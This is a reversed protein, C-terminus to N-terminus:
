ALWGVVARSGYGAPEFLLREEATMYVSGEVNAYKNTIGFPGATQSQQEVGDAAPSLMARKVMLAVVDAVDQADLSESLIRADVDSYRARVVRSAVRLLATAVTTESDSLSRWLDELDDTTALPDAM